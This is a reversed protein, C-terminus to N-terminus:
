KVIKKVIKKLETKIADIYTMYAEAGEKDAMCFWVSGTFCVSLLTTV